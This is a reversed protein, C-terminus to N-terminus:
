KGGQQVTGSEDDALLVLNDRHVLEDRGKYGLRAHIQGSNFGAIAAADAADYAVLGRAVEDGAESVISVADGRAFSGRVYRVGAPLLSRGGKLATIAGDDVAIHGCVALTGAIWRKRAAVPTGRPAFWTCPAGADIARLPHHGHGSAIIMTAGAGTAIRAAEIKTRMGGRSLESGQAGAMAEIEPTIAAVHDIRKADRNEQPPASYLGDVDSLLVLLDASIMSAVRAALRDNDGYRIESTAVTDNENIVPIAGLSVLTEMTGRANLYRRRQETDSLTLLVQGAHLGHAELTHAYARSLAIQGAAAAAQAEELRLSRSSLRLVRRGLAIAGSSVVLPQVRHRVLHAIDEALTALWTTDLRGNSPDILLSSGIKVVIRRFAHLQQRDTM